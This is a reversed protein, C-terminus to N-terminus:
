RPSRSRWASRREPWAPRWRRWAPARAELRTKRQQSEHGRQRGRQGPGPQHAPAGPPVAQDDPLAQHQRGAAGGQAPQQQHRQPQRHEIERAAVGGHHAAHRPVDVLGAADFAEAEGAALDRGQAIVAPQVQPRALLAPVQGQRRTAAPGALRRSAIASSMRPQCSTALTRRGTSALSLRSSYRFAAARTLSSRVMARCAPVTSTPWSATIANPTVSVM